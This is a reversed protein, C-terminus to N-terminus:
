LLDAYVLQRSDQPECIFLKDKTRTIAVYFKRIMKEEESRSEEITRQEVWALDPFVIVTDAEGGKVSHITGVVVKPREM